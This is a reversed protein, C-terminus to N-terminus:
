MRLKVGFKLIEKLSNLGESGLSGVYSKRGGLDWRDESGGEDWCRRGSDDGRM